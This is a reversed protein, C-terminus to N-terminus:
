TFHAWCDGESDEHWGLEGLRKKEEETLKGELHDLMPGCYIVDHEASVGFIDNPEKQYKMLIQMGEIIAACTAM